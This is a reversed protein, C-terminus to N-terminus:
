CANARGIESRIDQELRVLDAHLAAAAQYREEPAKQLAGCIIEELQPPVDARLHTVPIPSGHLIGDIVDLTSAGPFAHRGTTMEYLVAGMTFFDSPAGDVACLPQ